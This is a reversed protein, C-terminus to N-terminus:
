KLVTLTIFNLLVVVGDGCLCGMEFAWWKKLSINPSPVSFFVSGARTLGGGPLWGLAPISQPEPLVYWIARPSLSQSPDGRLTTLSGEM